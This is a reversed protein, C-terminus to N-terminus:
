NVCSEAERAGYDRMTIKINPDQMRIRLLTPEGGSPWTSYKKASANVSFVNEPENKSGVMFWVAPGYEEDPRDEGGFRMGIAALGDGPLAGGRCDM